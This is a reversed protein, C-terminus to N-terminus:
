FLEHQIQLADELLQLERDLAKRVLEVEQEVLQDLSQELAQAQSELGGSDLEGWSTLTKRHRSAVARLLQLVAVQGEALSQWKHALDQLRKAEDLPVTSARSKNSSRRTWFGGM